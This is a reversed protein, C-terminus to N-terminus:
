TSPRRRCARASEAREWSANESAESVKRKRGSSESEDDVRSVTYRLRPEMYERLARPAYRPKSYSGDPRNVNRAIEL